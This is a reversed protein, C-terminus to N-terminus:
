KFSAFWPEYFLLYAMEIM